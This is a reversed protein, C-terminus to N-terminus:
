HFERVRGAANGFASRRASGGAARSNRSDRRQQCSASRRAASCKAANRKSGLLGEKRLQLRYIQNEYVAHLTGDTPITDRGNIAQRIVAPNPARFMLDEPTWQMAPYNALKANLDKEDLAGPHLQQEFWNELGMKRVTELDGPKPGFTFRNLAHLIRDDGQILDSKYAQRRPPNPLSPQPQDASATAEQALGLPAPLSICWSLVIALPVQLRRM